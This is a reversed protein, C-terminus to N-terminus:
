QACKKGEGDSPKKESLMFVPGDDMRFGWRTEM